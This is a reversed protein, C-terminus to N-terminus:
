SLKRIVELLKEAYKRLNLITSRSCILFWKRSTPASPNLHLHDFHAFKWNYSLALSSIWMTVLTFLARHYMHSNNSWIRLLIKMLLFFINRKNKYRYSFISVIVRTVWHYLIQRGICSIRTWDRPQFSGRSFFIAVWELFRAQSIGYVSSGPLSCDM